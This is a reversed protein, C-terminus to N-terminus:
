ARHRADYLRARTYAEWYALWIARAHIRMSTLWDRLPVWLGPKGHRREELQLTVLVTVILVLSLPILWLTM